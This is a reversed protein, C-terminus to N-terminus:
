LSFRDLPDLAAGIGMVFLSLDFNALYELGLVESGLKRRFKTPLFGANAGLGQSESCGSKLIGLLDNEGTQVLAVREFSSALNEKLPFAEGRIDALDGTLYALNAVANTPVYRRLTSEFVKRTDFHYIDRPKRSFECAYSQGAAFIRNERVSVM